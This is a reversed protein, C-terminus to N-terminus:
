GGGVLTVIEISDGDVLEHGAHDRRPVVHRNVEVACPKGQLNLTALLAEVTLGEGMEQHEGNVTIRM